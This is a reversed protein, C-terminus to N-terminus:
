GEALVKAIPWAGSSTNSVITATVGTSPDHTSRFSVGADCGEMERGGTPPLWVGFGYRYGTPSEGRATTMSTWTAASVVEGAELAAWLRHVDAVTTQAGGDGSGRVPLHLANTRLSAPPGDLYGIAVDGPLEDNRLYASSTMGAREFVFTDVLDHFPVGAARECLLALVVYGGNCYSFGTGPPRQQPFGDLVRLFDETELLQHVPVPMVHDNVDGALDEDLYDGIGSTHSLLHEVTVADDVLPLDAHLLSRATTALSWTGSEVLAMAVLATFTKSGSAIGFRTDVTAAVRHARDAFGNAIHLVTEGGVDIRVVGSFSPDRALSEIHELNM